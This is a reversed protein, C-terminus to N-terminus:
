RIFKIINKSTIVPLLPSSLKKIAAFDNTVFYNLRNELAIQYLIADELDDFNNKIAKEFIYNNCPLMEILNLLEDLLQIRSNKSMSKQLIYDTITVVSESIFGSILGDEILKHLHFSESHYLRKDDFVDLIINTDLFVKIAM